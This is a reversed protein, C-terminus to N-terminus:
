YRYAQAATIQEESLTASVVPAAMRWHHDVPCRLYKSAGFHASTFVLKLASKVVFLHGDSCRFIREQM